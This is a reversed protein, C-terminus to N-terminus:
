EPPSSSPVPKIAEVYPFLLGCGPSHAFQGARQSFEPIRKIASKTLIMSLGLGEWAIM